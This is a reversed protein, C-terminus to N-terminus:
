LRSWVGYFVTFYFIVQRLYQVTNHNKRNGPHVELEYDPGYEM